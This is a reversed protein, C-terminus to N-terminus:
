MSARVPDKRCLPQGHAVIREVGQRPLGDVPEIVQGVDGVVTM